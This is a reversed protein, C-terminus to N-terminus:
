IDRKEDKISRESVARDWLACRIGGWLTFLLFVEWWKRGWSVSREEDHQCLFSLPIHLSLLKWDDKMLMLASRKNLFANITVSPSQIVPHYLRKVPESISATETVCWCVTLSHDMRICGRNIRYHYKWAPGQGTGPEMQVWNAARIKASNTWPRAATPAPAM